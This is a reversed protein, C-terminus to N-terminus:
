YAEYQLRLETVQPREKVFIVENICSVNIGVVHMCSVILTRLKHCLADLIKTFTKGHMTLVVSSMVKTLCKRCIQKAYIFM